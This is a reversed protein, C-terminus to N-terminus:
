DISSRLDDFVLKANTSTLFASTYCLSDELNRIQKFKTILIYTEIDAIQRFALAQRRTFQFNLCLQIDLAFFGANASKIVKIVRKIHFSIKLNIFDRM